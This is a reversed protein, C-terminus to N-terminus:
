GPGGVEKRQGRRRGQESGTVQSGLVTWLWGTFSPTM